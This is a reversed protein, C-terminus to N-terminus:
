YIEIDSDRPLPITIVNGETHIESVKFEGEIAAQRDTELKEKSGSIVLKEEGFMTLKYTHIM